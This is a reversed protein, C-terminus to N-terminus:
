RGGSVSAMSERGCLYVNKVSFAEGRGEKESM